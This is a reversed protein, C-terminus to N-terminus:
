DLKYRKLWQGEPSIRTKALHSNLEQMNKGDREVLGTRILRQHIKRYCRAYFAKAETPWNSHYGQEIELFRRICYVILDSLQIMPNRRSDVAYSFEVIRGVRHASAGSFRREHMIKELGEHFQDKRDLLIMGRATRGLKERMHWNLLTILYDFALLYPVKYDYSLSPTADSDKIASKSLAIYHVNHSRESLIDLIRYCLNSREQLSYGEFDGNGKFSLLDKAHLEFRRPLVGNFFQLLIDQLQSHTKNWGEDRVSVGGLVFVPQDNDNLNEGTDGSEDLYCFHM